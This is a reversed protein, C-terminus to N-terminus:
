AYDVVGSEKDNYEGFYNNGNANQFRSSNSVNSSTRRLPKNPKKTNKPKKYFTRENTILQKSKEYLKNLNQKRKQQMKMATNRLNNETQKLNNRLVNPNMPPPGPTPGPAAAAGERPVMVYNNSNEKLVKPKSEDGTFFNKVSQFWSGGRKSSRRKKNSVRNRKNSVRNRKNSVRNRKNSVRNRKNSRM